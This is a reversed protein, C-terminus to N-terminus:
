YQFRNTITWLNNKLFKGEKLSLHSELLKLVTFKYISIGLHERGCVCGAGGGRKQLDLPPLRLVRRSEVSMSKICPAHTYTSTRRKRGRKPKCALCLFYKLLRLILHWDKLCVCMCEWLGDWNQSDFMNDAASYRLVFLPIRCQRTPILKGSPSNSLSCSQCRSSAASRVLIRWETNGQLASSAALCVFTRGRTLLELDLQVLRVTKLSPSQSKYTKTCLRYRNSKRMDIFLHKHPPGAAQQRTM